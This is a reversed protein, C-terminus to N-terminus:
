SRVGAAVRALAARLADIAAVEERAQQAYGAYQARYVLAPNAADLERRPAEETAADHARELIREMAPSRLLDILTKITDTM